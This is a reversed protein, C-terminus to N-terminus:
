IWQSSKDSMFEEKWVPVKQKIMEVIESMGEIAAKRHASSVFIFLSIEGAKVSGLSHYIHLCSLEYKSFAKERIKSIENNAMNEYATYNIREVIKGNREDARVQGLFIAHGGIKTKSAHGAIQEAIFAPNIPGSIFYSKSSM